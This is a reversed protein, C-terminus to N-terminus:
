DTLRLQYLRMFQQRIQAIAYEIEEATTFRGLSFRLSSNAERRGLGIALLVHSPQVTASDCASGSSIALDRLAVLLAEGDIGDFSLNLNGAVRLSYDGNLKLGPLDAIGQWLRDRLMKIREIEATMNVRALRFAEGMGVLQHTPLTGSRLGYEHGGGHIQPELRVRPARRVYLAGVGKPGYVKHASFSMLDVPWEALNIAIKGASQAADVHLLVGRERCLKAIAPIDQIVGIENNVHMISVLLTDARIAAALKAMDLLGNPEPNLYTMEYGHRSLYDCVDLVAKHETTLTILHKGKRNYFASAGKLALNNAETAGSTWIIERPDASILEAVQARAQEVRQSADWGYRHGASSPNGFVGTQPLCEMMKEVVQPDVPTTAMYDLYIPLQMIAM